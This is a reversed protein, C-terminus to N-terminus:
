AAEKAPTPLRHVLRAFHSLRTEGVATGTCFADLRALNVAVGACLHQVQVKALGDSRARRLGTRRVAQSITGEIGARKIDTKRVDPTM